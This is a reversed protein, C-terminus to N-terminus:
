NCEIQFSSLVASPLNKRLHLISRHVLVRVHGPSLDLSRGIEEPTWDELHRLWFCEAQKAPLVALCKRVSESFAVFSEKSSSESSGGFIRRCM